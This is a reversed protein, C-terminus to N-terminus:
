GEDKEDAAPRGNGPQQLWQALSALRPDVDEVECGCAGENLNKGCVPCLGACDPQCYAQIPAALVLAESIVPLLDLRDGAMLFEGEPGVLPSGEEAAAQIASRRYEATFPVDINWTFPTLCRSCLREAEGSVRGTVAFRKGDHQVTAQVTLPSTWRVQPPPEILDQPDIQVSVSVTPNCESLISVDVVLHSAAGM